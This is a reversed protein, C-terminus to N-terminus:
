ARAGPAVKVTVRQEKDSHRVLTLPQITRRPGWIEPYGKLEKLFDPILISL